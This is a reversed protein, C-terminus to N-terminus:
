MFAIIQAEAGLVDCKTHKHRVSCVNTYSYVRSFSILFGEAYGEGASPKLGRRKDYFM